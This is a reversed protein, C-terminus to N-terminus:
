PFLLTFFVMIERVHLSRNKRTQRGQSHQEYQPVAHYLSPTGCASKNRIEKYGTKRIKTLFFSGFRFGPFIPHTRLNHQNLLHFRVDQITAKLSFAADIQLIKPYIKRELKQERTMGAKEVKYRIFWIDLPPGILSDNM